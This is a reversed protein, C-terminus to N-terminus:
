SVFDVRDSKFSAGIGTAWLRLGNPTKPWGHSQQNVCHRAAGHRGRRGWQQKKQGNCPELFCADMAKRQLAGMNQPNVCCRHM